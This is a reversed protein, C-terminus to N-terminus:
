KNLSSIIGSAFIFNGFPSIVKTRTPTFYLVWAFLTRLSNPYLTM